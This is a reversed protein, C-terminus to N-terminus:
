TNGKIAYFKDKVCNSPYNQLCTKKDRNYMLDRM